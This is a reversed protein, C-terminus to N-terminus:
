NWTVVLESFDTIGLNELTENLETLLVYNMHGISTQNSPACSESPVSLDEQSSSDSSSGEEELGKNWPLSAIKFKKKDYTSRMKHKTETKKMKPRERISKGQIRGKVRDKTQRYVKMEGKSSPSGYDQLRFSPNGYIADLIHQLKTGHDARLLQSGVLHGRELLQIRMTHASRVGFQQLSKRHLGSNFDQTGAAVLDLMQAMIQSIEEDARADVRSLDLVCIPSLAYACGGKRCIPVSLGSHLCSLVELWVCRTCISHGCPTNFVAPEISLRDGRDCM